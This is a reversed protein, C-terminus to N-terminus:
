GVGWTFAGAGGRFLLKDGNTSHICEFIGFSGSSVSQVRKGQSVERDGHFALTRGCTSSGVVVNAGMGPRCWLISVPLGESDSFSGVHVALSASSKDTDKDSVILVELRNALQIVRYERDDLDPKELRNALVKPPPMALKQSDTM